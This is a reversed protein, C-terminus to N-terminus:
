TGLPSARPSKSTWKWGRNLAGPAVAAALPLMLIGTLFLLRFVVEAGLNAHRSGRRVRRVQTLEGVSFAIVTILLARGAGSSQLDM